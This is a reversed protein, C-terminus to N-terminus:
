LKKFRWGSKSASVKKLTTATTTGLSVFSAAETREQYRAPTANRRLIQDSSSRETKSSESSSTAQATHAPALPIGLIIPIASRLLTGFTPPRALLSVSRSTRQTKRCPCISSTTLKYLRRNTKLQQNKSHVLTLRGCSRTMTKMATTISSSSAGHPM